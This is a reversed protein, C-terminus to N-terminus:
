RVRLFSRRGDIGVALAVPLKRSKLPEIRKTDPDFCVVNFGKESASVGSVLGLHTMGAFGVVPASM